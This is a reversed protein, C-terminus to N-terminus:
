RHFWHKTPRQLMLTLLTAHVALGLISAPLAMLGGAIGMAAVAILMYRSWRRRKRLYLAPVLYIFACIMAAAVAVPTNDRSGTLVESIQGGASTLTLVALLLCMAGLGISIVSAITVQKPPTLQYSYTDPAAGFLGSYPGPREEGPMDGRQESM